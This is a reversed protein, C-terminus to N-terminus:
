PDGSIAGSVVDFLMDLKSEFPELQSHRVSRRVPALTQLFVRFKHPSRALRQARVAIDHEIAPHREGLLKGDLQNPHNLRTSDVPHLFAKLRVVIIAEPPQVPPNAGSLKGGTLM